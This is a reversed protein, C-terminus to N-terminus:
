KPLRWLRLTKDHSSSLAFKGDPSFAVGTVEGSHGEFCHIEQKNVDWLRVTHDDGGSLLRQGDASFAVSTVAGKHGEHIRHERKGAVDWIRVTKDKSGSAVFKGDPSFAMGLVRGKHGDLKALEKGSSDWLRVTSAYGCAISKGDPAIAAAYVHATTKSLRRQEIEACKELDWRRFTADVGGGVSLLLAQKGNKALVLTEIADRHGEFHHLEKGTDADWLLVLGKKDGSLWHKGDAAFALCTIPEKPGQSRRLVKASDVDWLWIAGDSMAALAHRGDASLATCTVPNPHGEFVRVQGADPTVDGFGESILPSTGTIATFSAAFALLTATTPSRRHV